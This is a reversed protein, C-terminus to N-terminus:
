RTNRRHEGDPHDQGDGITITQCEKQFSAGLMFGDMMAAVMKAQIDLDSEFRAVRQRALYVLSDLDIVESVLDHVGKKGSDIKADGAIAIRSLSWFDAHQPRDPFRPDPNQFTM